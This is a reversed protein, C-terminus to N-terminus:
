KKIRELNASKAEIISPSFVARDRKLIRPVPISLIITPMIMTEATIEVSVSSLTYSSSIVVM